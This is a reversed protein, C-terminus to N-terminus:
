FSAFHSQSYKCLLDKSHTGKHTHTQIYAVRYSLPQQLQGAAQTCAAEIRKIDRKTFHRNSTVEFAQPFYHSTITAGPVAKHIHEQWIEKKQENPFISPYATIVPSAIVIHYNWRTDSTLISLEKLTTADQEVHSSEALVIIWEENGKHEIAIKPTTFFASKIWQHFSNIKNQLDPSIYNTHIKDQQSTKVKEIPEIHIYHNNPKKWINKFRTFLSKM